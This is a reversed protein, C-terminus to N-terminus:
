MAGSSFSYIVALQSYSIGRAQNFISCGIERDIDQDIFMPLLVASSWGIIWVKMLKYKLKYKQAQSICFYQQEKHTM